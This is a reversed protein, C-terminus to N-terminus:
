VLLNVTQSQVNTEASPQTASAGTVVNASTVPATNSALSGGFTVADTRGMTTGDANAPKTVNQADDTKPHPDVGRRAKAVDCGSTCLFGNVFSFM